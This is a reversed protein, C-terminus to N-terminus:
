RVSCAATNCVPPRKLWNVLWDDDSSAQPQAPAAQAPTQAAQPPPTIPAMQPMPMPQPAAALAMRDYETQACRAFEMTGPTYGFDRCLNRARMLTQQQGQDPPPAAAHKNGACDALLLAGAICLMAMALRPGGRAQSSM